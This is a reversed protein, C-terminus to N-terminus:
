DMILNFKNQLDINTLNLYIQTTQITSHMLLDKIEVINFGKKLLNTARSSRFSHFKVKKNNFYSKSIIKLQYNFRDHFKKTYLVKGLEKYDIKTKGTEMELNEKNWKNKKALEIYEKLEYKDIFIYQDNNFDNPTGYLFKRHTRAYNYLQKMLSKDVPLTAEKGRKAHIFCTGASEQKIIWEKWNFDSWKLYITSEFRIGAGIYYSCSIMLRGKNDPHHSIIKQIEADSWVQPTKRPKVIQPIHKYKYVPLDNYEMAAIILKLVSRYLYGKDYITNYYRQTLIPKTFINEIQNSYLLRTKEAYNKKDLYLLCLKKLEDTLEIWKRKNPQKETGINIPTEEVPNIDLVEFDM